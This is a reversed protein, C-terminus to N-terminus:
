RLRRLVDDRVQPAESAIVGDRVEFEGLAAYREEESTHYAEFVANENGLARIKLYKDRDALNLVVVTDPDGTGNGAFGILGM